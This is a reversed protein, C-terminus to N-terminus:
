HVGTYVALTRVTYVLYVPTQDPDKRPQTMFHRKFQVTLERNLDLQVPMKRNLEFLVKHHLGTLLYENLKKKELTVSSPLFILGDM